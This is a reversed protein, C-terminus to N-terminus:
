SGVGLVRRRQTYFVSRAVGSIVPTGVPAARPVGNAIRSIISFRWDTNSGAPGFVALMQTVVANLDAIYQATVLGGLTDGESPGPIYTRGRYSKGALATRWSIVGACQWPLPDGTDAGNIAAFSLEAGAATGPYVDTARLLSINIDDVACYLLGGSTNKVLATKFASLLGPMGGVEAQVCEFGFSNVFTGSPATWLTDIQVLDGPTSM